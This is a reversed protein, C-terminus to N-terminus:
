VEYHGFQLRRDASLWPRVWFRKARRRQRAQVEDDLMRLRHNIIALQLMAVQAYRDMKKSTQCEFSCLAM